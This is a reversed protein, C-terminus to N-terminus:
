TSCFILHGTSKVFLVRNKPSVQVCERLLKLEGIITSELYPREALCHAIIEHLNGTIRVRDVRITNKMFTWLNNATLMSETKLISNFIRSLTWCAMRARKRRWGLNRHRRANAFIRQNDPAREVEFERNIIKVTTVEITGTQRQVMHTSEAALHEVRTEPNGASELSLMQCCARRTIFYPRLTAPAYDSYMIHRREVNVFISLVDRGGIVPVRVLIVTKLAPRSVSHRICDPVTPIRYMRMQSAVCLELLPNAGKVKVWCEIPEANADFIKWRKQILNEGADRSRPYALPEPRLTALVVPDTPVFQCLRDELERGKRKAWFDQPFGSPLYLILLLTTSRLTLRTDWTFIGTTDALKDSAVTSPLHGLFFIM